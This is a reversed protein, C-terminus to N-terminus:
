SQWDLIRYIFKRHTSPVSHRPGLDEGVDEYAPVLDMNCIGCKGPELRQYDPHMACQWFAINRGADKDTKDESSACGVLLALGVLFLFVWPNRM